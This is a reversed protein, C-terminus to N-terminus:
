SQVNVFKYDNRQENGRGSLSRIMETRKMEKLREDEERWELTDDRIIVNSCSITSTGNDYLVGDFRVGSKGSRNKILAINASNSNQDDLSRAVTVIVQVIQQKKISGSGKDATLIDTVISSRGGQTTVWIAINLDKAMNELKRMSRGEANWESENAPGGKEPSLCEFYDIVVMDPKFGKNTLKLIKKEIDSARTEGTRMKLVRLNKAIMERDPHNDLMELINARSDDSLRKFNCAEVQTMRSFHKRTIDVDDDEFYIQLVKWGENNNHPSRASSAYSAIATSYTTKGVGLAGMMLGVKGKDLGGGLAQDLGDIGTPISVTYDNSLAKEKLDYISHGLDNDDGAAIADKLLNECEDYHEIDGTGAIELIKNAARIIKQQKFFKLANDKVVTYGEFTTKKLKEIFEDWETLEIESTARQRLPIRIVEYSPVINEKQYYDKLTGVFTRLLPDTFANQDIITSVESFFDADEVFYKVLKYQFDLGLYGLNGKDITKGM